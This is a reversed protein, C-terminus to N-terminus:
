KKADGEHEVLVQRIREHTLSSKSSVSGYIFSVRQEHMEEASQKVDAAKKLKELLAPNTKTPLIADGM